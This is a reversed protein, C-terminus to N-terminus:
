SARRLFRVREEHMLRAERGLWIIHGGLAFTHLTAKHLRAKAEQAHVFPVFPDKEDHILLAPAEIKAWDCYESKSFFISLADNLEGARNAADERLIRAIVAKYAPDAKADALREGALAKVKDEDTFFNERLKVLLGFMIQSLRDGVWGFKEFATIYEGRLLEPVYKADTWPRTVGAQLVLATTQAPYRSAFALASPAGGSMGVVAVRSRGHGRLQGILRAAVDATDSATRWAITKGGKVWDLTTGAYGPRHPLLIRFGADTLGSELPLAVRYDDGWGHFYLLLPGNEPGALAYTVKGGEITASKVTPLPYTELRKPDLLGGEAARAPGWAGAGASLGGLAAAAKLVARRDIGAM